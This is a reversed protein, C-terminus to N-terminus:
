SGSFTAPQLRVQGVYPDGNTGKVFVGKELGDLYPAYGPPPSIDIKIAAAAPPSPPPLVPPPHIPPLSAPGCPCGRHPACGSPCAFHRSQNGYLSVPSRNCLLLSHLAIVSTPM